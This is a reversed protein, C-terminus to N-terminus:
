NYIVHHLRINEQLMILTMNWRERKEKIKKTTAKRKRDINRRELLHRMHPSDNYPLFSDVYGINHDLITSTICYKVTKLGYFKTKSLSSWLKSHLSENPNQTRGLLCKELLSDQSLDKYVQLVAQLEDSELTFLVRLIDKHPPPQIKNAIAENYKCWSEKGQLCYLHHQPKDDTSTCHFIIALIDKRLSNVTKGKNRRINNGYHKALCAIVSDTLKNGGGGLRSM